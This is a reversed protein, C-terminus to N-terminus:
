FTQWFGRNKSAALTLNWFELGFFFILLGLYMKLMKGYFFVPNMKKGVTHLFGYYLTMYM